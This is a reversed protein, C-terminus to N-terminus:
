FADVLFPNSFFPLANARQGGGGRLGRRITDQLSIEDLDLKATQSRTNIVYKKFNEDIKAKLNGISQHCIVIINDFNSINKILVKFKYMRRALKQIINLKVETNLNHNKVCKM